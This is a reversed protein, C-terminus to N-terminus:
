SSNLASVGRRDEEKAEEKTEELKELRKKASDTPLKKKDLFLLFERRCFHLCDLTDNLPRVRVAVVVQSDILARHMSSMRRLLRDPNHYSASRARSESNEDTMTEVSGCCPKALKKKKVGLPKGM